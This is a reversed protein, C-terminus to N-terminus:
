VLAEVHARSPPVNVGLPVVQVGVIQPDLAFKQSENSVHQSEPVTWSHQSPSLTKAGSPVHVALSVPCVNVAAVHVHPVECLQVRSAASAVEAAEHAPVEGIAPSTCM